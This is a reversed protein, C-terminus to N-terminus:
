WRIAMLWLRPSYAMRTVRSSLNCSRPDGLAAGSNKDSSRTPFLCMLITRIEDIDPIQLHQMALQERSGVDMSVFCSGRADTKSNAKILMSSAM